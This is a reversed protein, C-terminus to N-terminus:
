IAMCFLVRIFTVLAFQNACRVPLPAESILDYADSDSVDGDGDGDGDDDGDGFRRSAAAAATTTSGRRNFRKQKKESAFSTLEIGELLFKL